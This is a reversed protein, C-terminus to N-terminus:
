RREDASLVLDALGADVYVLGRHVEAEGVPRACAGTPTRGDAEEDRRDTASGDDSYRDHDDGALTPPVVNTTM